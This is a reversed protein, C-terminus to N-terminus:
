LPCSARRDPAASSLAAAADAARNRRLCSDKPCGEALICLRRRLGNLDSHLALIHAAENLDQLCLHQFATSASLDMSQLPLGM